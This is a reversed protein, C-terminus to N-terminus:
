ASAYGYMGRAVAQQCKNGRFDDDRTLLAADIDNGFVGETMSTETEPVAASVTAAPAFGFPPLPPKCKGRETRAAKGELSTIKKGISREMCDEITFETGKSANKVCGKRGKLQTGYFKVGVKNMQTVCRQDPSAPLGGATQADADAARLLLGGAVIMSVAVGGAFLRVLPIGRYPFLGSLPQAPLNHRSM